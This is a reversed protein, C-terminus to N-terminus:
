LHLLKAINKYFINERDEDTINAHLIKEVELKPNDTPMDTGFLIRESGIDKTLKEIGWVYPQECTDMYINDHRKAINLADNQHFFGGMHGMIIKADPVAEAAWEIQLPLCMMEDSCHYLVPIDYHAAMELIRLTTDEFPALSYDIPHLKVGKFGHKEVATELADLALQGYGPDMRLYPIFRGPYKNMADLFYQISDPNQGPMNTYTSICASSIGAMEMYQILKEPTDELGSEPIYEMHAHSDIIKYM